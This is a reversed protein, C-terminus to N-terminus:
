AGPAGSQKVHLSVAPTPVYDNALKVPIGRRLSKVPQKLLRRVFVPHRVRGRGGEGM